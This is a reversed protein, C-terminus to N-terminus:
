QRGPGGLMHQRREMGLRNSASPVVPLGLQGRGKTPKWSLPLFSVGCSSLIAEIQSKPSLSHARAPFDPTLSRALLCCCAPIDSSTIFVLNPHPQSEPFLGPWQRNDSHGWRSELGPCAGPRRPLLGSTRCPGQVGGIM